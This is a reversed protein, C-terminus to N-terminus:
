LQQEGFAESRVDLAHKKHDLAMSAPLLIADHELTSLSRRCEPHTHSRGCPSPYGWAVRGRWRRDLDGQLGRQKGELGLRHYAPNWPNLMPMSCHSNMKLAALLLGDHGVADGLTMLVQPLGLNKAVGRQIEEENCEAPFGLSLAWPPPLGKRQSNEAAVAAVSVSDLGGSLYIAAPGLCLCREVAQDLLEDFRDLEDERIWDVGAGPIPLEWYRRVQKSRGVRIVHGPPVRKVNKFFTEEVDPWRHCLHDALAARNVEGSVRPHQTLAEISTSFLWEGEVSAYFLPYVGVPDRAASYFM